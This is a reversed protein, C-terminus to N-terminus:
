LNVKLKQGENLEDLNDVSGSHSLATAHAQEGNSQDQIDSDSDNRRHTIRRARARHSYLRDQRPM